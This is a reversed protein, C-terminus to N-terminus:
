LLKRCYAVADKM